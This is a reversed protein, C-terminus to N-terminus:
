RPKYKAKELIETASRQMLQAPTIDNNKKVYTEVIRWGVWQGINGPSYEQSLGQTFPAEGLYNQIFVPNLTQLEDSRILYTWILGENEKCWELQATTFGTILSDATTPLILRSLYWYKGKEIMQEILTKDNSQDPFLDATIAKVLTPVIYSPEFRRSLYTPYLGQLEPTQYAFFNCGAYQQLGIAVGQQLVAVGPADFPGMYFWIPGPRFAPFYYSLYQHAKKIQKKLNDINEFSSQLSDYVLRYQQLFIATTRQTNTDAPNGSSGLIYSMFDYYFGPSQKELHALSKELQQTDLAFFTQDFRQFSLDMPIHDVAPAQPQQKCSSILLLAISALILRM